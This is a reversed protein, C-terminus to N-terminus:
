ERVYYFEPVGADDDRKEVFIFGSKELVHQSAKNEPAVTAVIKTIHLTEAAYSVIAQVIESALGQGWYSQRFAYKIEVDLQGGPHTLGIFGAIRGNRKDELAYMGYGRETYNKDTVDLWLRSEERTIPSGDGIWRGVEPDSYVDFIADLDTSRWRRVVLRETELLSTGDLNQYQKM